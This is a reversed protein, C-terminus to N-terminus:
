VSISVSVVVLVPKYVVVYIWRNTLQCLKSEVVVVAVVAVSVTKAKGSVSVEVSRLVTVSVNTSVITLVSELVSVEVRVVVYSFSIKMVNVECVVVITSNCTNRQYPKRVKSSM